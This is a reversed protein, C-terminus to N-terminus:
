ESRWFPIDIDRPVPLWGTFRLWLDNFAPLWRYVGIVLFVAQVAVLAITAGLSPISWLAWWIILVVNANIQERPTAGRLGAAKPFQGLFWNVSDVIGPPIVDDLALDSFYAWANAFFGRVQRSAARVPM